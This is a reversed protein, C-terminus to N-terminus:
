RPALMGRRGIAIFSALLVLGFFMTLWDLPAPPAAYGLHALMAWGGGVLLLLYFALNGTENSLNKMLEDMLRWQALTLLVAAAFLALAAALATTRPVIGGPGALALV